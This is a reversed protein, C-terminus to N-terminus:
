ATNYLANLFPDVGNTNSNSSPYLAALLGGSTSDITNGGSLIIMAPDSYSSSSSSSQEGTLILFQEAAQLLGAPTSYDSLKIKSTLLSVQQDFPLQAYTASLGLNTTVVNLLRTDSMLQTISTITPMTRTFYLADGMGPTQTAEETEYHSTEYQSLITAVNSSDSLAPVHGDAVKPIIGLSDGAAVAVALNAQMTVVGSSSVSKVIGVISTGDTIIQGPAIGVAAKGLSLTTDTVASSQLAKLQIGINQIGAGIAVDIRAGNALDISSGATLTVNGIADISKITGIANGGSLLTQGASLALGVTGLPLVRQGATVAQSSSGAFSTYSRPALSFRGNDIPSLISLSASGGAVVNFGTATMATSLLKTATAAPIATSGAAAAPAAVSVINALRIPAGTADAALVLSYVTNGASDKGSSYQPTGTTGTISGSSDVSYSGTVPLDATGTSQLATTLASAISAAATGDDLVYTFTEAPSAATLSADTSDWALNNLTVSSAASGNTVFSDAAPDGFDIAVDARPTMAKAFHLDDASNLTRVLSGSISPDQTMLKNLLGTETSEGSMNYAGLVVQLGQLNSSKLLDTSSSLNISDAQFAAVTRQEVPDTKLMQTVQAQENKVISLYASVPSLGSM